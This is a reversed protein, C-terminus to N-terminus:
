RERKKVDRERERDREFSGQHMIRSSRKFKLWGILKASNVGSSHLDNSPSDFFSYTREIYTPIPSAILSENPIWKYLITPNELLTMTQKIETYLSEWNFRFMELKEWVIRISIWKM